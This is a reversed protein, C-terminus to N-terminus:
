RHDRPQSSGNRVLLLVAVAALMGVLAAFVIGSAILGLAQAAAGEGIVEYLPYLPTPLTTGLMTIAFAAGILTVAPWGVVARGRICDTAWAMSVEWIAVVAVHTHALAGRLAQRFAEQGVCMWLDATFPDRHRATAGSGYVWPTKLIM